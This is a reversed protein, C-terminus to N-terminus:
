GKITSGQRSIAKMIWKRGIFYAIFMPLIVIISGAMKINQFVKPIEAAPNKDLGVKVLWVSLVKIKEEEKGIQATLLLQPWLYSNWSALATLIIITVTTPIVMPFAIKFFYKMGAAGDILSVEKLRNPIAEFANKYMVVNFVSASFPLSIGLIFPIVGKYLGLKHTIIYQGSLLSVEPLVLLSLAIFWALGKFRWNKISFAYGMLSTVFVKFFVSLIVNLTTILLANWYGEEKAANYTYSVVQTWSTFAGDAGVDLSSPQFSPFFKFASQLTDSEQKNMFSVFIMFVFPFLIVVGFFCLLFLKFLSALIVLYLKTERVQGSVKEQNKQLKHGVFLQQVKLKLEFM